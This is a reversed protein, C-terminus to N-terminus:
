SIISTYQVSTTFHPCRNFSIGIKLIFCIKSLVFYEYYTGGPGSISTNIMSGNMDSLWHPSHCQIRMDEYIDEYGRSARAPPVGMTWGVCKGASWLQWQPWADFVLDFWVFSNGETWKIIEEKLFRGSLELTMHLSSLKWHSSEFVYGITNKSKTPCKNEIIEM